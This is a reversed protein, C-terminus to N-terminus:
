KLILENVEDTQAVTAIPHTKFSAYPVYKQLTINVEVETGEYIVYGNHEGVFIGWDKAPGAALDQKVMAMLGQFATAREKPDVPLRSGDLEWLVLYKGM